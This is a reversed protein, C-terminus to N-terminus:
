DLGHLYRRRLRNPSKDLRISAGGPDIRRLVVLLSPDFLYSRRFRAIFRLNQLEVENPESWVEYMRATRASRTHAPKVDPIHGIPTQLCCGPSNRGRSTSSM